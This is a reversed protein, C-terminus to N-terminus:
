RINSSFVPMLVEHLFPRLIIATLGWVTGNKTPYVPGEMKLRQLTMTKEISLLESVSVTFVHSVEDKNGPFVGETNSIEGRFYAYYPTIPVLNASPITEGQGIVSISQNFEDLTILKDGDSTPMLEEHTERIATKILCNGDMDPDYHGGPFSIENAHNKLNSSRKTFLISLRDLPNHHHIEDHDVNKIRRIGKDILPVLVSGKKKMSLPPLKSSLSQPLIQLKNRITANNNFQSKLKQTNQSLITSLKPKKM